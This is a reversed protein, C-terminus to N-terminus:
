QRTLAEVEDSVCQSVYKTYRKETSDTPQTTQISANATEILPVGGRDYKVKFVNVACVSGWNIMLYFQLWPPM